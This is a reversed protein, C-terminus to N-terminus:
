STRDTALFDPAADARGARRVDFAALGAGGGVKAGEEVVLGPSQGDDLRHHVTKLLDVTKLQLRMKM